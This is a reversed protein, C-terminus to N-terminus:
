RPINQPSFDPFRKASVVSSNNSNEAVLVTAMKKPRFGARHPVKQYWKPTIIQVFLEVNLTLQV